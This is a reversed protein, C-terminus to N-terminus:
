VAEIAEIRVIKRAEDVDYAAAINFKRGDMKLRWKPILTRSFATSRTEIVHTVDAHVQDFIRGERGGKTIFRGKIKHIQSWNSDVSLDVHGAADKTASPKEITLWKPYRPRADCDGCTM